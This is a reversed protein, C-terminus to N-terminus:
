YNSLWYRSTTTAAPNCKSSSKAGRNCNQLRKLLECVTNPELFGSTTASVFRNGILVDARRLDSATTSCARGGYYNLKAVALEKALAILGNQKGNQRSPLRLLNVVFTKPYEVSGLTLSIVKDSNKIWYTLPKTCDNVTPVPTEETCTTTRTPPDVFCEKEKPKPSYSGKVGAANVQYTVLLTVIFIRMILLPLKNVLVSDVM